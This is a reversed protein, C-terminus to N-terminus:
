RAEARETLLALDDIIADLRENGIETLDRMGAVAAATEALAEIAADNESLSKELTDLAGAHGDQALQIRDAVRGLNGTVARYAGDVASVYRVYTLEGVNLKRTLMSGFADHHRHIRQYQELARGAEGAGAGSQAMDFLRARIAGLAVLHQRHQAEEVLALYRRAHVDRAKLSQYAFSGAAAAAFVLVGIWAVTASTLFVVAVSVAAGGCGGLTLPHRASRVLVNRNLASVSLAQNSM